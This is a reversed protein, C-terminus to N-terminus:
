SKQTVESNVIGPTESEACVEFLSILTDLNGAVNGSINKLFGIKRKM